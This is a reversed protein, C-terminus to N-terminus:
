RASSLFVSPSSTPILCQHNEENNAHRRHREAGQTAARSASRRRGFELWAKESLAVIMARHHALRASIEDLLKQAAEVERYALAIDLPTQQSIM